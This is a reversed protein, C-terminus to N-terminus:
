IAYRFENYTVTVSTNGRLVTLKLTNGSGTRHYRLFAGTAECIDDTVAKDGIKTIIDGSRVGGDTSVTQVVLKGKKYECNFGLMPLSVMGIASDTRETRVTFLGVDRGDGSSLIRKYVPYVISMPTAFGTDEVASTSSGGETNVEGSVSMRYTGLGVLRGKMDFVGGGSMGANIVATTRFVPVTKKTQNTKEPFLESCELLESKRSITGDYSAIGMSMANGISVMYDGENFGVDPSVVSSGDIDYIVLDDDVAVSLVAIDYHGDYGLLEAVFYQDYGAFRVLPVAAPNDVYRIIVHTNTVVIANRGDRKMVIGSGNLTNGGIGCRVEVINDKRAAVVAAINQQIEGTTKIENPKMGKQVLRATIVSSCIGVALCMVTMVIIVIWVFKNDSKKATKGDAGGDVRNTKEAHNPLGGEIEIRPLKDRPLMLDSIPYDTETAETNDNLNNNNQEDM